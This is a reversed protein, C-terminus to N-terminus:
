ATCADEWKAWDWIEDIFPYTLTLTLTLRTLTLALKPTLNPILCFPILRFPPLMTRYRSASIYLTM